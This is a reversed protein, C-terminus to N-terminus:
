DSSCQSRIQVTSDLLLHPSSAFAVKISQESLSQDFLRKVAVTTHRWRAKFVEGFCGIGIRPGLEVEAFDVEAENADSLISSPGGLSPIEGSDDSIGQLCPLLIIM